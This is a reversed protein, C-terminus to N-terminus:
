LIATTLFCKKQYADLFGLLDVDGPTRKETTKEIIVEVCKDMHMGYYEADWVVEGKRPGSNFTRKSYVDFRKIGESKRIAFDGIVINM